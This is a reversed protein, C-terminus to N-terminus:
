QGGGRWERLISASESADLRRQHRRDVRRHARTSSRIPCKARRTGTASAASRQRVVQAATSSASVSTLRLMSAQHGSTDRPASAITTVALPHPTITL